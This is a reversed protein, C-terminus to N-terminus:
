EAAVQELVHETEGCASHCSSSIVWKGGLVSREVKVVWVRCSSLWSWDPCVRSLCSVILCGCNPQEERSRAARAARHMHMATRNKLSEMDTNMFYCEILLMLAQTVHSYTLTWVEGAKHKCFFFFLFFFPSQRSYTGVNHIVVCDIQGEFDLSCVYGETWGEALFAGRGWSGKQGWLLVQM